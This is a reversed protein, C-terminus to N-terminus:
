MTDWNESTVSFPPSLNSSNILRKLTEGSYKNIKKGHIIYRKLKLIAGRKSSDLLYFM